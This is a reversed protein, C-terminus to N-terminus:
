VIPYRWAAERTERLSSNSSCWIYSSKRQSKAYVFRANKTLQNSAAQDNISRRWFRATNTKKQSTNPAYNKLFFRNLDFRSGKMSLHSFLPLLFLSPWLAPPTLGLARSFFALNRSLAHQARIQDSAWRSQRRVIDAFSNDIFIDVKSLLSSCCDGCGPASSITNLHLVPAPNLLHHLM